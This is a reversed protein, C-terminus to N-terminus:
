ESNNELILPGTNLFVNFKMLRISNGSKDLIHIFGLFSNMVNNRKATFAFANLYFYGELIDILEMFLYKTETVIDVIGLTTCVKGAKLGHKCINDILIRSLKVNKLVLISIEGTSIDSVTHCGNNRDFM